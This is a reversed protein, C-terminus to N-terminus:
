EPQENYAVKHDPVPDGEPRVQNPASSTKNPAPPKPAEALPNPNRNASGQFIAATDIGLAGHIIDGLVTSGACLHVKQAYIRGEVTGHVHVTEAIVEGKVVGGAFITVDSARVNGEIAGYIHLEAPSTISGAMEVDISIISPGAGVPVARVSAVVPSITPTVPLLPSFEPPEDWASAIARFIGFVDPAGRRKHSWGRNMDRPEREYEM